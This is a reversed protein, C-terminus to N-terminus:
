PIFLAKTQNGIARMVDKNLTVDIKLSPQPRHFTIITSDIRKFGKRISNQKARIRTELERTAAYSELM